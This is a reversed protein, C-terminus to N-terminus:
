LAFNRGQKRLAAVLAAGNSEFLRKVSHADTAHIHIHTDGGGGEGGDALSRITDAHKAPLVMEREHLQTMPNIGAPIDYGGEASAVHSAFGLVVGTAAIAAAPAIFPGVYPISALASYVSAAVEWAKMAINKVASWANAAISQAAAMWDSATRTANGALTAGTQATEGLAWATVKKTIFQAFGQLISNWVNQLGKRLSMTGQIMGAMSNEFSARISRTAMSMDRNQEIIAQSKLQTMRTQHTRELQEIAANNAEIKELNGDFQSEKERLAQVDIQYLREQLAEEAQIAQADSMQGLAQKQAIMIRERDIEATGIQQTSVRQIEQITVKKQQLADNLSRTNKIEADFAQANLVTLEATIRLEQAKLGLVDSKKGTAAARVELAQTQKLEQEKLSIAGNINSQEISLKAAFYEQTTLLNHKYADDYAEQAETLYEKQIALQGELAAKIVAYEAKFEDKDPKVETAETFSKGTAAKPATDKAKAGSGLLAKQIQEGAKESKDVIRQQSEDIVKEIAASGESWASKVGDWDLRFAAVAVAAFRKLNEITILIAGRILEFAIVIGNKLGLAAVQVVTMLSGWFEFDKSIDGGVADNIIQVLGDFVDKLDSWLENAVEIVIDFLNAVEGFVSKFISVASPGVSSFWKAMETFIPMVAQGITNELGELVLKTDALALKYERTKAAQEPGIVLGLAEAKKAAEDMVTSNLKLLATAEAAGKGFLAQAALNRDTGEKYGKLASIANDMLQQGNLFEGNAGRTAVGMAKVGEENTRVGKLLKGLSDKYVDASSGVSKLAVNLTSADSASVGLMKSLGMTEGTLKAAADISDKFFKGGALVAAFAYIHSMTGKFVAGLDNFSGAIQQSGNKAASVAKAMGDQFPAPDASVVYEATNEAM